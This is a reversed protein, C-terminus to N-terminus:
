SREGKVIGVIGTLAMGAGLEAQGTVVLHVGGIVSGLAAWTSPELIRKILWAM